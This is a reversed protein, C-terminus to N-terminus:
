KSSEKPFYHDVTQQWIRNVRGPGWKIPENNREIAFDNRLVSRVFNLLVSLQLERNGAFVYIDNSFAELVKASNEHNLFNQRNREIIEGCRYACGDDRRIVADAYDQLIRRILDGTVDGDFEYSEGNLKRYAAEVLDAFEDEAMGTVKWFHRVKETLPNVPSALVESAKVTVASEPAHSTAASRRRVAAPEAPAGRPVSEEADKRAPDVKEPAPTNKKLTQIM